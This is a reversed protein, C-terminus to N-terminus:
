DYEKHRKCISAIDFELNLMDKVQRLRYFEEIEEQFEPYEKCYNYINEIDDDPVFEYGNFGNYDDDRYFIEEKELLNM